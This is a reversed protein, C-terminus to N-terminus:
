LGRFRVYVLGLGAVLGAFLGALGFPIALSVLSGLGYGVASGALMAAVLYLGATAADARTPPAETM